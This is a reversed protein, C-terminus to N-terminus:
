NSGADLSRARDVQIRLVIQKRSAGSGEIRVDGSINEGVRIDELRSVVGDIVIETERTVEGVGELEQEHGGRDARYTVMIRGTGDPGPEIKQVRGELPVLKAAPKEERCGVAVVNLLLMLFSAEAIRRWRYDARHKM